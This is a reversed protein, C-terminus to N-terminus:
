STKLWLQVAFNILDSNPHPRVWLLKEPQDSVDLAPLELERFDRSDGKAIDCGRLACEFSTANSAPENEDRLWQRPTVIASPLSSWLRPVM